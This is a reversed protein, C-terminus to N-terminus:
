GFATFLRQWPKIKHICHAYEPGRDDAAPGTGRSKRKEWASHWEGGKLLIADM